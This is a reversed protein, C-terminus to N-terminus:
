EPRWTAKGAKSTAADDSPSGQEFSPGGEAQMKQREAQMKAQEIQMPAFFQILAQQMPRLQQESVEVGQLVRLVREEIAKNFRNKAEEAQEPTMSTQAFAIPPVPLAFLLVALTCTSLSAFRM